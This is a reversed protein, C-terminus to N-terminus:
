EAVIGYCISLGLGTGQGHPKTTFFPEFVKAQLARPVGTGEDSVELVVREAHRATRVTIRLGEPMADMANIVLTMLVQVLGDSDGDVFLPAADDLETVLKVRRCRPHHQLLFLGHTVLANLEVISRASSKPRSFELLSNVIRSCRQVELDIIRLLEGVSSGPAGRDGTAPLETQLALSEACAAITALPNNIEHMVGAALQGVAALKESQATRDIAAKWDTIDEGITIVHTVDAGDTRMPIKSIRFTRLEGSASSEMIFQQLRGTAFAEDFEEKLLSAPQRSLVDFITKGIADTRSLGQLGTERRRNWAHIRYERDVVYLGVPLSDVVCEIFARHEAIERVRADVECQLAILRDDRSLAVALLDCFSDLLTKARESQQARAGYVISALTEGRAGVIPHAVADGASQALSADRSGTPWSLAASAERGFHGGSEFELRLWDFQGSGYLSALADLLAARSDTAGGLARACSRLTVSMGPLPTSM